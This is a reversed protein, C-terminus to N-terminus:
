ALGKAATIASGALGSLGEAVADELSLVAPGRARLEGLRETYLRREAQPLQLGLSTEAEEVASWLRAARELRGSSAATAALGALCYAALRRAEAEWVLALSEAYLAEASTLEGEALAVDGLHHLTAGTFTHDGVGRALELSRELFDRAHELDRRHWAAEGLVHLANRRGVVDASESFLDLAEELVPEAREDDLKLLADGLVALTRARETPQGLAASIEASQELLEVARALQGTYTGLRGSLQLAKARSELSVGETAIVRELRQVGELVHGRVAWYDTLAELVAPTVAAPENEVAWDLATSLNSHDAALRKIAALERDGKLDPAVEAALALFYGAHRRLLESIEGSERLREQAYEQITQLMWFRDRSRRVLSRAVLSQLSDLDADCIAEAAELTAGGVCAGLRAFLRQEATSLLGYSWAITAALTRHREPADRTGGTLLPLTTGLRELLREPTLVNTRAAALELALPLHDLRRCIEAVASADTELLEAAGARDAFLLQADGQSLPPVAYIKEGGINLRERSTVLCRLNPCAGLLTSVGTAAEIVQEFNDLLLLTQRSAIHSALDQQAGVVQAVAPLVFQPDQVGALPVWWVGHEYEPVLTAAVELALRSKGIGGPGTLTLVRTGSGAILELVEKRERLRGLFGTTPLPLNTQDLTRLPPFQQHGLQYLRQPSDIDKLRHIGLDRTDLDILDRTAQSLLVQGGHAAACIRAARHVDLGVYDGAAQSAEGTHLGIRLRVRGPGLADQLEWAMAAAKRASGFVAFFGDGRSGVEVGDHRIIRERALAWTEELAQTFAATGVEALLRTSGEIDTFVFTVTGAPLDTRPAASQEAGAVDLTSDQSLIAQQLERLERRPEIGLEETLTRRAGQYAELADAQRGARYLALMLQGHLRERLPHERVLEELEGVLATHEGAALDAEIRDELATIRLEELRAVEAQAFRTYSHDALPPGRWLALADRPRGDALLRRFREVDLEEDAVRLVYGPAKTQLRENGLLKRLRSVHVQLAKHATRPPDDEWVAEILRDTSVVENAHLLLVALLLRPKQGVVDLTQGEELVELPGLVRFEV